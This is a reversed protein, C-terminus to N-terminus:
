NRKTRMYVNGIYRDASEPDTCFFLFYDTIGFRNCFSQGLRSGRMIDWVATRRWAQWDRRSIRQRSRPREFQQIEQALTPFSKL